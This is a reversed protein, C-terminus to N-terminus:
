AGEELRITEGFPAVRDTTMVWLIPIPPVDKPDPYTGDGDTLYILCSPLTDYATLRRVPDIFSTGGGGAPHPDLIDEPGYEEERAIAADAFILHLKEPRAEEHIGAVESLFEKMTPDSISGSTDVAVAVPPCAEGHLAPLYVGLHTYRPNPHRWSYDDRTTAQQVFRRMRAKWDIKPRLAEQVLRALGAPLSGRGQAAQAAAIIIGQMEAQSEAREAQTGPADRVAGPGFDGENPDPREGDNTTENRDAAREGPEPKEDPDAPGPTGGGGMVCGGRKGKRGKPGCGGEESEPLLAYIEESSKGPYPDDEVALGEPPLEMGCERLLPNIAFDCNHVVLGEAIVFQKETVLDFVPREERSRRGFTIRAPEFNQDALRDRVYSGDRCSQLRAERERFYTGLASGRSDSQDRSVAQDSQASREPRLWELADQLVTERYFEEGADRLLREASAVPTSRLVYEIHGGDTSLLPSEQSRDRDGRRRYDRGSIRIGDADFGGIQSYEVAESYVSQRVSRTDGSLAIYERLSGEDTPEFGHAFSTPLQEHYLGRRSSQRQAIGYVVTDKEGAHIVGESTLILHDDTCNLVGNRHHLEITRKFGRFLNDLVLSPGEPSLVYEGPQIQEIAKYSGDAMTIATGTQLCAVNWKRHDRNGRRWPHLLAVHLAEHALLGQVQKANLSAIFGPAYGVKRGDTWATFCTPDPNVELACIVTGFFPHQLVIRVLAATVASQAKAIVEPDFNQQLRDALLKAVEEITMKKAPKSM